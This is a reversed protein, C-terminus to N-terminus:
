IRYFQQRTVVVSGKTEYSWIEKKSEFDLAHIKNDRAGIYVVGNAIVPYSNTSTDPIYGRWFDVQHKPTTPRLEGQACIYEIGKILVRGQPQNVLKGTAADIVHIKKAFAGIYVKGKFVIPPSDMWTESQFQWIQKGTKADLAYVRNDRGSFYVRQNWVTPTYRIAGGAKFTWQIQWKKANLAYLKQDNSGVYVTGYAVAPSALIPGGTKFKWRLELPPKLVQDPSKGSFHLDYMFMPWDGADPHATPAAQQDLRFAEKSKSSTSTNQTDQSQCGWLLCCSLLLLIFGTHKM